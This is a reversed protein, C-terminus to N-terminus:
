LTQDEHGGSLEVFSNGFQFTLSSNSKSSPLDTHRHSVQWDAYQMHVPRQKERVRRLLWAVCKQVLRKSHPGEEEMRAGISDLSEEDEEKNGARLLDLIKRARSEAARASLNPVFTFGVWWGHDTDIDDDSVAEQSAAEGESDFDESDLWGRRRLLAEGHEEDLGALNVQQLAQEVVTERSQLQQVHRLVVQRVHFDGRDDRLGCSMPTASLQEIM